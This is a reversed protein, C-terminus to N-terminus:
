WCVYVYISLLTIYLNMYLLAVLEFLFRLYDECILKETFFSFGILCVTLSYNENLSPWRFGAAISGVWRFGAAISGVPFSCGNFYKLSSSVFDDPNWTYIM